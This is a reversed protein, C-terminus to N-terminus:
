ATAGLRNPSELLAVEGEEGCPFRSRLSGDAYALHQSRFNDM